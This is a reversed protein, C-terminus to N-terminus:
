GVVEGNRVRKVNQKAMREAKNASDILSHLDATTGGLLTLGVSITVSLDGVSTSIPTQALEDSLRQAVARASAMDTEPLLAVFEDGGFRTLIDVSRLVSKCRKVVAQLVVNGISHSYTNNLQRFDDIDFFLAALPRNFRRAREVERAGLEMLGRYNYVGTLEDIIALRQEESYLRANEIAIAAQVAIRELLRVQDDTFANPRQSQISLVGIIQDRVTLPIGIYSNIQPSTESDPMMLPRTVQRIANHIYLTRRAQIVNGILGPHDRVDRSVGTMSKGKEYYIPFNVLSNAPDYLAVYFIDSPAVRSCQEYLAKLTREMDLGATIVLSIRNVIKLEEVNQALDAETKHRATTDRMVLIRGTFHKYRDYLPSVHVDLFCEPKQEFLVESRIEKGEDAGKILGNWFNLYKEVPQGISKQSLGNALRGAAPNVNAINNWADLVVVGDLMNEILTDRSVPITDFLQNRFIGITLVISTALFSIPPIDLGAFPLKAFLYVGGIVLPIVAAILLYNIQRRYPPPFRKWARALTFLGGAVMFYNYVNMLYYGIGHGYIVTNPETTSVTFSTWILHHYDNTLVVLMVILPFISLLILNRVRPWERRHSYDYSFIYFLSPATVIGLYEVKAWTIKQALGISAAELGAAMSWVFVASMLLILSDSGATRPKRSILLAVFASLFASAWLIGAYPTYIWTM